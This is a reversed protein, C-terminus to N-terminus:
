EHHEKVISGKFYAALISGSNKQSLFKNRPSVMRGKGFRFTLRMATQLTALLGLLQEVLGVVWEGEAQELALHLRHTSQAVRVALTTEPNATSLVLISSSYLSGYSKVPLVRSSIRARQETQCHINHLRSCGVNVRFARFQSSAIRTRSTRSRISEYTNSRLTWMSARISKVLFLFFCMCFNFM